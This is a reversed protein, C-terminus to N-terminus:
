PAPLPADEAILRLLRSPKSCPGDYTPPEWPLVTVTTGVDVRLQNTPASPWPTPAPVRSLAPPFQVISDQLYPSVGTLVQGWTLGAHAAVVLGHPRKVDPQPRVGEDDPWTQVSLGAQTFDLTWDDYDCGQVPPFSTAADVLIRIDAGDRAVFYLMETVRDYPTAADFTVLVAARRADPCAWARRVGEHVQEHLAEDSDYARGMFARADPGVQLVALRGPAAAPDAHWECSAAIPPWVFDALPVSWGASVRLVGVERPPAPTCAVLLLLLGM